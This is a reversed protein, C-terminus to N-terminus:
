TAKIATGPMKVPGSNPVSDSRMPRLAITINMMAAVPPMVSAITISPSPQAIVPATNRNPTNMNVTLERVWAAAISTASPLPSSPVNMPSIHPLLAKKPAIADM